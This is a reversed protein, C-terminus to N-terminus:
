YRDPRNENEFVKKGSIVSFNDLVREINGVITIPVEHLGPAETRSQFQQSHGAEAAFQFQTLGRAERALALATGDISRHYRSPNIITM